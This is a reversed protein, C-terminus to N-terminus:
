PIQAPRLLTIEMAGLEPSVRQRSRWIRKSEPEYWYRNTFDWRMTEATCSEDYVNTDFTYKGVTVKEQGVEEVACDARIDYLGRSPMDFLRVYKGAGAAGPVPTTVGAPLGDFRVIRLNDPLGVTRVLIGQRTHIEARDRARWILTGDRTDALAVRASGRGFKVLIASVPLKDVDIEEASPVSNRFFVAQLTDFPAPLEGKDTCGALLFAPLLLISRLRSMASRSM